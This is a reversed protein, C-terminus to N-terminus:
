LKRAVLAVTKQFFYLDGDRRFPRAGSLDEQEDRSFLERVQAARDPPTHTYSMWYEVTQVMENSYLSDVELRCAGFMRLLESTPLARTHSTDRLREYRDQFAAREPIESAALDEAAVTGGCRCVRAMERLAVVPDEFHHFAFRCFVIDFESDAFPLHDADGHQFRVNAIGRERRNREAVALIADTIDVGVVERCREAMAMAVNGPGTAIELARAHPAPDIANVLRALRERNHVVDAAAFSEAQRTFEERILDKHSM